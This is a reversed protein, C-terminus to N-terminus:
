DLPYNKAINELVKKADHPSLRFFERSVNVRFDQLKVHIDREANSCNSVQIAFYVQYPIPVGTSKSLKEARYEPLKTTKGIKIVDPMARNVLIYIYGKDPYNQIQIIEDTSIQSFDKLREKNIINPFDIINDTKQTEIFDNNKKTPIIKTSIGCGCDKMKGSHIHLRECVFENGCDCLCRVAGGVYYKVITLNGFRTEM